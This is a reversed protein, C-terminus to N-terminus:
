PQVERRELGSGTWIYAVSGRESRVSIWTDTGTALGSLRKARAGRWEGTFGFGDWAYVALEDDGERTKEIALLKTGEGFDAFAFDTFPRSLRSGLWKAYVDEGDWGYIFLRNAMVPHFRTKKYVGVAIEEQGDGDVDAIAIKWPNLSARIGRWTEHLGRRDVEYLRVAEDPGEILVAVCRKGHLHTFLIQKVSADDIAASGIACHFKTNHLELSAGDLGNHAEVCLDGLFAALGEPMRPRPSIAGAIGIILGGLIMSRLVKM